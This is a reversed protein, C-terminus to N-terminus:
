IKQGNKKGFLRELLEDNEANAIVGATKKRSKLAKHGGIIGAATLASGALAGKAGIIRKMKKPNLAFAIAEEQLKAPSAPIKVVDEDSKNQMWGLYHDDIRDTIQNEVSVDPRDWGAEKIGPEVGVIQRMDSDFQDDLSAKKNILGANHFGRVARMMEHNKGTSREYVPTRTSKDGGTPGFYGLHKGYEPHDPLPAAAKKEHEGVLKKIDSDRLAKDAKGLGVDTGFVGAKYAPRNKHKDKGYYKGFARFAEKSLKPKKGPAGLDPKEAGPKSPDQAAKVKLANMQLKKPLNKM